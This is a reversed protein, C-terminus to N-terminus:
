HYTHEVLRHIYPSFKEYPVVGDCAALFSLYRQGPRQKFEWTYQSGLSDNSITRKITKQVEIYSYM